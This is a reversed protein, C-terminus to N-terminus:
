YNKIVAGIFSGYIVIYIFNYIMVLRLMQDGVGDEFFFSAEIALAFAM